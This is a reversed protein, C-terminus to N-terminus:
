LGSRVARAYCEITTPTLACDAPGEAFSVIMAAGPYSIALSTASWYINAVTPGFVTQDICPVSPNPPAPLCGPAAKDVIGELEVISPLRWDCHGAFGGTVTSGRDSSVCFNLRGLFDSFVTGNPPGGSQLGGFTYSYVNDADHPDTPNPTGDLNAKQEWVLGTDYDTATGDGNVGYRCAIAAATAQATLTALKDNFTRQCKGPDAPKGQLAKGNETAQCKRLNGWEKLKKAQCSETTLAAHASAFGGLLLAAVAVVTLGRRTGHVQPM